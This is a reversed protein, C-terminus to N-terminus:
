GAATACPPSSKLALLGEIPKTNGGVREEYHDSEPM